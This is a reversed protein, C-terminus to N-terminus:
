AEVSLLSAEQLHLPQRPLREPDPLSGKALKTPQAFEVQQQKVVVELKKLQTLHQLYVSWLSGPFVKRSLSHGDSTLRDILQTSTSRM